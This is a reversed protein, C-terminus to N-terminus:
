LHMHRAKTVVSCTMVKENPSVVVYAMAGERHCLFMLVYQYMPWVGKVPSTLCTYCLAKGGASVSVSEGSWRHYKNWTSVNWM